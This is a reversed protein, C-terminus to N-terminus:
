GTRVVLGSKMTKVAITGFESFEDNAQNVVYALPYGAELDSRDLEWEETYQSVYLLADMTGIVTYARLVLYVLANNKKEFEQVKQKDSEPIGSWLMTEFPAECITFVGDKLREAVDGRAKLLELRTIAEAMQKERLTKNM